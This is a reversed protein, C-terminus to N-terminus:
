KNRLRTERIYKIAALRDDDMFKTESSCSGKGSLIAKLYPSTQQVSRGPNKAHLGNDARMSFYLTPRANSKM